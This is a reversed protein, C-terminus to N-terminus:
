GCPGCPTEASDDFTSPVARAPLESGGAGPEEVLSSVEGAFRSEGLIRMCKEKDQGTLIQQVRFFGTWTLSEQRLRVLGYEWEWKRRATPSRWWIWTTMGPWGPREKGGGSGGRMKKRLFSRSRGRFGEMEREMAVLGEEVEVLQARSKQM